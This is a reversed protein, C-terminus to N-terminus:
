YRPLGNPNSSMEGKFRDRLIRKQLLTTYNDTVNLLTGYNYNVLSYNYHVNLSTSYNYSKHPQLQLQGNYNLRVKNRPIITGACVTM